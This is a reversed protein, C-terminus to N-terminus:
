IKSQIYIATDLIKQNLPTNMGDREAYPQQYRRAYRIIYYIMDEVMEDETLYEKDFRGNDRDGIVIHKFFKKEINFEFGEGPRPAELGYAYSYKEIDIGEKKFEMLMEQYKM